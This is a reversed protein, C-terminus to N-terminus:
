IIRTQDDREHAIRERRDMGIVDAENMLRIKVNANERDSLIRELVRCFKKRSMRQMM